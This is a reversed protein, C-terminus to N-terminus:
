YPNFGRARGRYGGRYGGGRPMYGGGGGGGYGGGGRGGYMPPPGYGGGFGGRGRPGGPGGRGGGGRGGRTMGPLNTRKPVVKIARGRFQSDNLVLAPTVLNPDTFEVYAYGKPHGTFKDLLITVRNIAGATQFHAQIEEPSAGYDVNGVFVSRNDIDEKSERLGDNQADIDAQMERLKAAEAEMEQVRKKMAAIEEEDGADDDDPARDLQEDERKPDETDAM